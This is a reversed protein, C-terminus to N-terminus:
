IQVFNTKKLLFFYDILLFSVFIFSKKLYTSAVTTPRMKNKRTSARHVFTSIAVQHALECTGSALRYSEVLNEAGDLFSLVVVFDLADIQLGVTERGVRIGRQLGDAARQGFKLLGSFPNDAIAVGVSSGFVIQGAYAVLYKDVRLAHNVNVSHGRLGHEQLVEQGLHAYFHLERLHSGVLACGFHKGGVSHSPMQSLMTLSMVRLRLILLSRNLWYASLM